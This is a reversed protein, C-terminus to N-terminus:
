RNEFYELVNLSSFMGTTVVQKGKEDIVGYYSGQKIAAYGCYFDSVEDYIPEVIINGKSNIFGWRGGVNVAAFGDVMDRAADFDRTIKKDKKNIFYCSSGLSVRALNGIFAGADTYKAQIALKGKTNVYGYRGGVMVKALKQDNSFQEVPINVGTQVFQLGGVDKGKTDILKWYVYNSGSQQEIVKVFAVGYKFDLAGDYTCAIKIAGNKNAYGWKYIIDGTVSDEGVSKQVAILNSPYLDLVQKATGNSSAPVAIIIIFLVILLVVITAAVYKRPVDKKIIFKIGHAIWESLKFVASCIIAWIRIFFLDFKNLSPKNSEDGVRSIVTKTKSQNSEEVPVDEIRNEETDNNIINESESM